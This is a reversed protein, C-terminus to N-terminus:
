NCGPSSAADCNLPCQDCVVCSAFANFLNAGTPNANVCNQLCVQDGNCNQACDYYDLCQQNNVCNNLASECKGGPGTV